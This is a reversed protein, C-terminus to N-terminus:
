EEPFLPPQLQARTETEAAQELQQISQTPRPLNEPLTGGIREIAARVERGVNFHTDNAITKGTVGQGALQELKETTATVRFINAGLEASGMYNLIHGKPVGMRAAIQASTERYLGKYGMDHFIAFDRGSELGHLSAAANLATNQTAIERRLMLRQANEPLGDIAQDLTQAGVRALWQKFPEAKPSPISQVIRLMTETDAAETERMKGDLARMKLRRCNTSLESAGEESMRAKVATWYKAPAESDTLVAVADVISFFWRGDHWVKRIIRGASGDDFPLIAGRDAGTDDAM